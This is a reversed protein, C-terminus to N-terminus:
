AAESRREVWIPEFLAAQVIAIKGLRALELLAIFTIVVHIRRADSLLEAFALREGEEFRALIEAIRDELTIEDLIVEFSDLRPSRDLVERYVSALDFLTANRLLEEEVIREGPPLARGFLARRWEERSAFDEAVRKFERYELLRQVLEERPDEEEAADETEQKPLLMKAKIRLLTAAMVLFEGAVQLDLLEMLRVEALYEETLRAIPIDFVDFEDRQILYLLLDLPGEFNSLRVTYAPVKLGALIEDREADDGAGPRRAAAAHAAGREAVAAAAPAEGKASEDSDNTM